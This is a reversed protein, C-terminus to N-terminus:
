KHDGTPAPTSSTAATTGTAGTAGTSAAAPEQIRVPAGPTVGLQGSTIVREGAKVGQEVVVFDGQRQGLKVQRLDAKSDGTVVYMYPGQQSIQTAAAPALVADKLTTLILRVRVFQGPWFLRGTNPITARLMVTGTGQLVSNDVLTLSGEAPATGARNDPSSVQTILTADAMHRRVDPLDRETITFDAYIPELRQITLLPTTAVATVVNGPDVLREGTRGSLPSHVQTYDLNVRATEVAAQGAKIQAEVVAVASQRTEYDEQSIAQSPILRQAREFEKQALVLSAQSQIVSAEAQHLAAEYPAPDITFLLDGKNVDAGDTFHIATIRGTAQARLTVVESARTTGIEDLYQPVDRSATTAVAVLPPLPAPEPQKQRCGPELVALAIAMLGAAGAGRCRSNPM